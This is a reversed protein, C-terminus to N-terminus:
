RWGGRGGRGGYGGRGMGGGGRGFNGFDGGNDVVKAGDEFTYRRLEADRGSVDNAMARGGDWTRSTITEMADLRSNALSESVPLYYLKPKATQTSPFRTDLSVFNPDTSSPRRAPAAPTPVSPPRQSTTGNNRPGVPANQPASRDNQAAMQGSVGASSSQRRPGSPATIEQLKAAVKGDDSTSYLVEWRRVDRKSGVSEEERMVWEKVEDDPVFDVWLPKRTSEDPWVQGHLQSRVQRAISISPFTAFAHTRINDVHFLSIEVDDANTGNGAALDLLYSRLQQPQVPRMLERVYISRTAPHISASSTPEGAMAPTNQIADQDVDQRTSEVLGVPQSSPESTAPTERVVDESTSHRPAEQSSLEEHKDESVQVSQYGNFADEPLKPLDDEASKMKKKVSSDSLEPTPSRRKRKRTESSPPSPADTEMTMSEAQPQEENPAVEAKTAVPTDLSQSDMVPQGTLRVEASAEVIDERLRDEAPDEQAASVEAKVEGMRTDKAEASGERYELTAVDEATGAANEDEVEINEREEEGRAGDPETGANENDDNVKADDAELAEVIQAKRSLGTSAIGREKLLEKLETVKLKNYDTMTETVLFLRTACIPANTGVCCFHLKATPFLLSVDGSLGRAPDCPAPRQWAEPAKTASGWAVFRGRTPSFMVVEVRALPMCLRANAMVVMVERGRMSVAYCLDDSMAQSVAACRIM